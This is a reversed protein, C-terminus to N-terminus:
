RDRFYKLSSSFGRSASFDLRSANKKRVYMCFFVLDPPVRSNNNNHQQQKISVWFYGRWEYLTCCCCCCCYLGGLHFFFNISLIRNNTVSLYIGANDRLAGHVRIRLSIMIMRINDYHRNVFHLKGTLPKIERGRQTTTCCYERKCYGVRLEVYMFRKSVIM